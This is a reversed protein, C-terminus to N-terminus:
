GLERVRSYEADNLAARAQQLFTKAGAAPAPPAATVKALHDAATTPARKPEAAPQGQSKLASLLGAAAQQPQRTCAGAGPAALLAATTFTHSSWQPHKLHV